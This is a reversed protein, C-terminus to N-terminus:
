PLVEEVPREPGLPRGRLDDRAVVRVEGRGNGVAIRGTTGVAAAALVMGLDTHVRGRVEYRLAGSADRRFRYHLATGTGLVVAGDEGDAVSAYVDADGSALRHLRDTRLDYAYVGGPGTGVFLVAEAAPVPVSGYLSHSPVPIETEVTWGALGGRLRLLAHNWTGALILTEDASVWVTALSREGTAVSAREELDPWTWRKITGDSSTTWLASGDEDLWLANVLFGHARSRKRVELDPLGWVAVTKDDSATALFRDDAALATIGQTHLTRGGTSRGTADLAYLIGDSSGAWLTRGAGDAALAWIERPSVARAAPLAFPRRAFRLLRRGAADIAWLGDGAVHVDTVRDAANGSAFSEDSALDWLLVGGEGGVWLSPGDPVFGLALTQGRRPVRREEGSGHLDFLRVDDFWGGVAVWGSTEDIAVARVRREGLAASLRVSGDHTAIVRLGESGAMALFRDALATVADAGPLDAAVAPLCTGDARLCVTIRDGDRLACHEGSPTCALLEGPPLFDIRTTEEGDLPDRLRVTSGAGMWLRGDTLRGALRRDAAPPAAAPVSGREDALLYLTGSGVLVTVDGRRAAIRTADPPVTAEAVREFPAGGGPAGADPARGWRAWAAVAAAALLVVAATAVLRRRPRRARVPPRRLGIAPSVKGDLAAAFTRVDPFRDAPDPQTARLLTERVLPPVAKGAFLEEPVTRNL